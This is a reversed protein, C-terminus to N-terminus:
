NRVPMGLVVRLWKKTMLAGGRRSDDSDSAATDMAHESALTQYTTIVVDFQDLKQAAVM